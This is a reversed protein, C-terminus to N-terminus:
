GRKKQAEEEEALLKRLDMAALELNCAEELAQRTKKGIHAKWARDKHQQCRIFLEAIKQKDM